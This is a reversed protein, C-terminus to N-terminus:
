SPDSHIMALCLDKFDDPVGEQWPRSIFYGNYDHIAYDTSITMNSLLQIILQGFSWIDAREDHMPEAEIEPAM